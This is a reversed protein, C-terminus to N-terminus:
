EAELSKPKCEAGRTIWLKVIQRENYDRGQGGREKGSWKITWDWDGMGIWEYSDTLKGIRPLHIKM